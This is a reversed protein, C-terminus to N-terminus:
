QIVGDTSNKLKKFQQFVEEPDHLGTCKVPCDRVSASCPGLGKCFNVYDPVMCVVDGVPRVVNHNGSGFLCVQPVALFGALHSIFSDVTIAYSAEDMVWAAERFSLKGRLDVDAMAPYDNKGGLQVTMYEPFEEALRKCVDEMYKYTRFEPDGGTTHVVIIFNDALKNIMEQDLSEPCKKQIMADTPEVRLIKWYFDALLSNSNRGWHGPAIREGHPNVVYKYTAPIRDDWSIIKDIYENGELIDIYQPSTMYDIPVQNYREKLGRLCRTTMLVDGASSHQVFLVRNLKEIVPIAKVVTHTLGEKIIDHINSVGALWEKAFKMGKEAIDSQVIPASAVLCMAEVLKDFDCARAEIFSTGSGTIMPVYGVATCPIGLASGDKILESHATNDSLITPTGCLMSELPTWSLGEMLSPLVFCDVSNYADRMMETNYPFEQKKIFVDGVKGGCDEIYQKINFVGGALETHMYLSINPQRKRAAFFAKIMRQPDKRFQNNAFFGFLFTGEPLTKFMKRRNANKKELPYPYYEDKQWMNPRFYRVREDCPHLLNYGYQSYVCPIDIHRIINLWDTRVIEQEYPFVWSWVFKQTRKLELFDNLIPYYMWCDLGVIVILDYRNSKLHTLLQSGGCFDHPNNGGEIIRPWYLWDEERTGKTSAFLTIEYSSDDAAKIQKVFAAMMHGNGSECWPHEGVLLVKKM